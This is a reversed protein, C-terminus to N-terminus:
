ADINHLGGVLDADQSFVGPIRESHTSVYNFDDSYTVSDGADWHAHLGSSRHLPHTCEQVRALDAVVEPEPEPEPEPVVPQGVVSSGRAYCGALLHTNPYISDRNDVERLYEIDGNPFQVHWHRETPHGYISCTQVLPDDHAEARTKEHAARVNVCRNPETRSSSYPYESMGCRVAEISVREVTDPMVGLMGEIQQDTVPISCACGDHGQRPVQVNVGVDTTTEVVASHLAQYSAWPNPSMERISHPSALVQRHVVRITTSIQLPRPELGLEILLDDLAEGISNDTGQQHATRTILRRVKARQTEEDDRTRSLEALKERLGAEIEALTPM